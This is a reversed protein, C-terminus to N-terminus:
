NGLSFLGLSLSYMGSKPSVKLSPFEARKFSSTVSSEPLLYARAFDMCRWEENRDNRYLGSSSLYSSSSRPPLSSLHRFRTVHQYSHRNRDVLAAVLMRLQTTSELTCVFISSFPLIDQSPDITTGKRATERRRGLERREVM